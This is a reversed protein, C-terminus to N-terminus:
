FKLGKDGMKRELERDVFVHKVTVEVVDGHEISTPKPIVINDDKVKVLFSGTMQMVRQFHRKSYLM